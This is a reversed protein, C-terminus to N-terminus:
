YFLMLINMFYIKDTGKENKDLSFIVKEDNKKAM